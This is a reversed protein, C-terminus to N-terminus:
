AFNNIQGLPNTTPIWPHGGYNVINNHLVICDDTLGARHNCGLIARIEQGPVLNRVLGSLAVTDGSVSIIMRREIQGALGDWTVMGGVYKPKLDTTAWGSALTVTNGTSSVLSTTTTAATIDAQCQPGYLAHPCSYQYNRRLGPRRMSTSVPECSFICENGEYKASLIRGTWCVLFEQDPDNIHGQRIIVSVVRSPPYIRFLDALAINGPTRLELTSKDLTGSSTLNGRDLPAAQYVVGMHTISTEADTYSYFDGSNDGYRFFYLQVPEGLQRSEERTAFTM